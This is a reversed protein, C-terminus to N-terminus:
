TGPRATKELGKSSPVVVAMLLQNMRRRGMARAHNPATWPTPKPSSGKAAAISISAKSHREAQTARPTNVRAVPM